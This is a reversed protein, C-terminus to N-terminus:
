DGPMEATGSAVAMARRPLRRQTPSRLIQDIKIAIIINQSLFPIKRYLKALGL